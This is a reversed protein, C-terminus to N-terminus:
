ETLRLCLGQCAIKTEDDARQAYTLDKIATIENVNQRRFHELYADYVKDTTDLDKPKYNARDILFFSADNIFDENSTLTERNLYEDNYEHYVPQM